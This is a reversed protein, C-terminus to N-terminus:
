RAAPLFPDLVQVFRETEETYLTHGSDEFVVLRARPLTAALLESAALPVPDYRGHLILTDATIAGLRPRLDMGSLSHWVAQQARASVRFPSLQTARSPDRFYGAVSLEFARRWFADPDRERLGSASLAARAAAIRPDAQRRAFEADFAERAAAWTPAPAVLALKQVAGPHELAHLIALLCGWSFGMVCSPRPTLGTLVAELDAVHARWDLPAERPVESRGGGRQDYFLLTRDGALRDFQPRLYDMSAGPGGHLVVVTPGGEGVWRAFLDVGAGRLTGTRESV